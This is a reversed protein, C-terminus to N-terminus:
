RGGPMWCFAATLTQGPRRQLDDDADAPDHLTRQRCIASERVLAITTPVDLEPEHDHPTVSESGLNPALRAVAIQNNQNRVVYLTKGHLLLGDGNM